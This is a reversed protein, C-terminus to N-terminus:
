ETNAMQNKSSPRITLKRVCYNGLHRIESKLRYKEIQETKEVSIDTSQDISDLEIM